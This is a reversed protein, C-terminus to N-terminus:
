TRGAFCRLVKRCLPLRTLAVDRDRSFSSWASRDRHAHPPVHPHTPRPPRPPFVVAGHGRRIDGRLPRTSILQLRADISIGKPGRKSRSLLLSLENSMVNGVACLWLSVWVGM